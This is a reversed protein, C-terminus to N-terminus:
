DQTPPKIAAISFTIPTPAGGESARGLRFGAATIANILSALPYHAAGVKNRVQGSTGVEGTTPSIAPTWGEDLYGPRLIAMAPDNRDAFDGIFCPHVGIHVFTGGPRLVRNIESLVEPFSPMDSHIMIGIAADVTGTAFPLTTADGHVAPLRDSAYRLMGASIDVGLPTWGLSRIREAYIGTGCGVELCRGSGSGLLGVIAEDIGIADAFDGLSNARRQHALFEEEYWEAIDDYAASPM